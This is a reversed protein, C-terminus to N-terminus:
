ATGPDVSRSPGGCPGYGHVGPLIETPRRPGGFPPHIVTSLRRISRGPLDCSHAEGAGGGVSVDVAILFDGHQVGVRGRVGIGIGQGPGVLLQRSGAPHGTERRGARWRHRRESPPMAGRQARPWVGAASTAWILTLTLAASSGSWAELRYGRARIGYQSRAIAIPMTLWAAEAARQSTSASRSM